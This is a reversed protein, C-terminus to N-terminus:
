ISITVTTKNIFTMLLRDIYNQFLYLNPDESKELPTYLLYLRVGEHDLKGLLQFKENPDHYEQFKIIEMFMLIPYIFDPKLIPFFLYEFIQNTNITVKGYEKSTYEVSPSIPLELFVGPNNIRLKKFHEGSLNLKIITDLLIRGTTHQTAHHKMKSYIYDETQKTIPYNIIGVCGFSKKGSVNCEMCKKEYKVLIESEELMEGVTTKKTNQTGKDTVLQMIAPFNLINEHSVGDKEQMKYLMKAKGQLKVLELIKEAPIIKKVECDYHIIFDVAM